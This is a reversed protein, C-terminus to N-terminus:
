PPALGGNTGGLQAGPSISEQIPCIDRAFITHELNLGEGDRRTAPAQLLPRERLGANNDTFVYIPM